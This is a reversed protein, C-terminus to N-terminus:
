GVHGRQGPQGRDRHEDGGRHEQRPKASARAAAGHELEARAERAVLQLLPAQCSVRQVTVGGYCGGHGGV